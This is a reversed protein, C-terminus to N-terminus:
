ADLLVFLILGHMACLRVRGNQNNKSSHMATTL